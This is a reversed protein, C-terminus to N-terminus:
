EGCPAGAAMFTVTDDPGLGTLSGAISGKLGFGVDFRDPFPGDAPHFDLRAGYAEKLAEVKSGPGIGAATRPALGERDEFTSTEWAFFHAYGASGYSTPGDSLLIGLRGWRVGRVREGPCVGFPSAKAPGWGTDGDPEGLIAELTAVVLRAPQGFAVVRLGGPGAVLGAPAERETAPEGNPGPPAQQGRAVPVGALAFVVGLAAWRGVPIAARAM